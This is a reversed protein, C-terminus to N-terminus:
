LTIQKVGFNKRQEKSIFGPTTKLIEYTIEIFSPILNEKQIEWYHKKMYSNREFQDVENGYIKRYKDKEVNFWHPHWNIRDESKIIDENNRNIWVIITNNTQIQDLVHTVAPCQVVINEKSIVNLFGESTHTGFDQEDIHHYNLDKSITYAAYTTGSRQPGAIIIRTYQKLKKILDQYEM